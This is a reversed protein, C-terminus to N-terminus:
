KSFLKEIDADSITTLVTLGDPTYNPSVCAFLADVLSSMENTNLVQGYVIAASKALTLALISHVESKIDGGKDMATELMKHVLEVPNLGDIGEPIGNIAYSGGGLNNLEFGVSNFDDKLEELVAAQSAPLDIIDPFLVGQSNGKKQQIQHMYKDYLVRVHARHQDILMLGSKVSTLIFRGKFQLLTSSNEHSQEEKYLSPSAKSEIVEGQLGADFSFDANSPANVKSGRAVGEYLPEWDIDKRQYSPTSGTKFPNFDTNIQVKPISISESEDFAPIEPMGETDFDISPVENFRGLSEKIAAAIIQWIAQENEFKIETKTPHINVDITAPDIEFYVFYSIMDGVPILETYAEMVAKYFYPHRMYRGNVFFFQHAGRKRSSEPKGVFGSVKILTTDVDVSLLESNIKKGFLHVIRQRITTSPLNFLETDNSYLSFSVEPNVLAIREFENLIKSLETADTKLFKRRAPVNYFLNKISFHTGRNTAVAEQEELKSGAIRIRTGVEDEERRTLLEVQAVAAISALAEGRFGMTTLAFLDAANTIKSTAHREFALRADMESMGIGDDIVQMCTKGADNIIVQINKAGADISNEILEKIVSAPRQIVEGAAIQNAVSDPLLHILDSM